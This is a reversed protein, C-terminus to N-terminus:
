LQLPIGLTEAAARIWEVSAADPPSHPLRNRFDRWLRERAVTAEYEDVSLWCRGPSAYGGGDLWLTEINVRGLYPPELDAWKRGVKTVRVAQAQSHQRADSPVYWLEQGVTLM